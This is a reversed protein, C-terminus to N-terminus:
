YDFVHHAKLKSYAVPPNDFADLLEFVFIMNKMEKSFAYRFCMKKDQSNLACDEKVTTPLLIGSKGTRKELM